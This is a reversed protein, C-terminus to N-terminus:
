SGSFYPLSLLTNTTFTRHSHRQYGISRNSFRGVARIARLIPASLHTWGGAWVVRKLFQDPPLDNNGIEKLGECCERTGVNQPTDGTVQCGFVPGARINSNSSPRM